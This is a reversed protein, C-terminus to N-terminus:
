IILSLVLVLLGAKPMSQGSSQMADCTLGLTPVLIYVHERPDMEKVVM